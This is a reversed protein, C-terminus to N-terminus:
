VGIYVCKARVLCVIELGETSGRTAGPENRSIEIQIAGFATLMMMSAWRASCPMNIKGRDGMRTELWGLLLVARISVDNAWDGSTTGTSSMLSVKHGLPYM